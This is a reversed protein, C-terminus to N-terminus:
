FIWLFFFSLAKGAKCTLYNLRIIYWNQRATWQANCVLGCQVHRHTFVYITAWSLTYALFRASWGCIDRVFSVLVAATYIMIALCKFRFNSIPSSTLLTCIWFIIRYLGVRLAKWLHGFWICNLNIFEIATCDYNEAM